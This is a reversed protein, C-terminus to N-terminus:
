NASQVMRIELSLGSQSIPQFGTQWDGVSMRGNLVSRPRQLVSGNLARYYISQAWGKGRSRVEKSEIATCPPQDSHSSHLEQLRGQLPPWFFLNLDHSEGCGWAPPREHIPDWCSVPSQLISGQGPLALSGDTNSETWVYSQVWGNRKSCHNCLFVLKVTKHFLLATLFTNYVDLIWGQLCIRRLNTLWTVSSRTTFECFSTRVLFSV